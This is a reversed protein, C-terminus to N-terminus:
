KYSVIVHESSKPISYIESRSFGVNHFMRDYETFTYADGEPTTALMLLAFEASIPSIRDDNPVFEVTVVRGDDALSSHIKKLLSECTPKDFHHLFNSLLVLDYNEGIEIEFVSGPLLKYRDSVGAAQATEQAVKLVNPWDIAVVNVLPCVKAIEVGFHGHGAAVDLVKGPNESTLKVNKAIWQAIDTMLPVMARAFTTWEPHEKATTGGEDLVTGGKIVANTLDKIGDMLPPSLLFKLTGGLFLSSRKDLFMSSDVTLSYKNNNKNIFGIITLSDLLIRMGRESTACHDAVEHVTKKGEGITTFVDLDVAVKLAATRQFGSVTQMFLAPSPEESHNTM